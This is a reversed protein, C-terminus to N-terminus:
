GSAGTNRPSRVDLLVRGPEGLRDRIDDRGVSLTEGGEPAPHAVAAAAPTESAVPMGDATWKKKSGDLLKLNRFGAMKLVWFAYTGFQM